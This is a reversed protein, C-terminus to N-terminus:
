HFHHEAPKSSVKDQRLPFIMWTLVVKENNVNDHIMMLHLM